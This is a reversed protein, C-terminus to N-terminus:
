CFSYLSWIELLQGKIPQETFFDHAVAEMGPVPLAQKITNPLDQLLFRGPLNPHKNKIAEVEHGRGGGVDILMVSGDGREFGRGVREEFPFFDLWNTRGDRQGTMWLNFDNLLEPHKPFWDFLNERTNFGEQFACNNPDTPNQYKSKALFSPLAMTAVRVIDYTHNVGAELRPVILNKTINNPVYTDVGAEGISRIAVLYRLLRLLLAHDAGVRQALEKSTAPKRSEVLVHFIRLSNAIRVVTTQMPQQRRSSNAAAVEALHSVLAVSTLMSHSSSSVYYAVRHVTEGPTELALSLKGATKKLAERTPPGSPDSASLIKKLTDILAKVELDQASSNRAGKTIDM